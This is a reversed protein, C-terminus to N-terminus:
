PCPTGAAIAREAAECARSIGERGEPTKAASHWAELDRALRETHGRQESPPMRAICARVKAAYSDCLATSSVDKSCANTVLAVASLAFSLARLGPPRRGRQRERPSRKM